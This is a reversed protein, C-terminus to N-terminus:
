EFIEFIDERVGSLVLTGGAARLRKHLSIFLGLATSTLYEVGGLDLVLKVGERGDLLTSLQGQLLPTTQEHLSKCGVVRVITQDPTREVNLRPHETSSAMFRDGAPCGPSM